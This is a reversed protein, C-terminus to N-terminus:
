MGQKWTGNDNLYLIGQGWSGNDNVSVIGQKWTGNDNIYISGSSEWVAYLTVTANATYSDGPNYNVTTATASTSWGIFKYGSRTPVATSLVINRGFYKTQSSPAGLGGNANYSITYSALAPIDIYLTVYGVRHSNSVAGQIYSQQYATGRAFSCSYYGLVIWGAPQSKVYATDWATSAGVAGGLSASWKNGTTKYSKNLYFGLSISDMYVYTDYVYYNYNLYCYFNRGTATGATHSGVWAGNITAM